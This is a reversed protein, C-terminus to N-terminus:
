LDKLLCQYRKFFQDATPIAVCKFDTNLLGTLRAGIPPYSRLFERFLGTGHEIDRIKHALVSIDGGTYNELYGETVVVEAGGITYSTQAQLLDNLLSVEEPSLEKKLFGTVVNLDAGNSLLFAAAEMDKPTTSPYSLSGTDEYIGAMLITAEQPSLKIKKKKIIHTLVATSSGYPKIVEVSGKLDGDSAPHHDYIHIDVGDRAAVDAFPGIRSPHRVDVLILREVKDLDIDKAKEYIYPLDIAPLADRLGKELSGSFVLRAEPYLKKAALMSAFTDFDANTHSTIVEM